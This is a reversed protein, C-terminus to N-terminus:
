LVSALYNESHSLFFRSSIAPKKHRNKQRIMRSALRKYLGVAVLVTLAATRDQYYDLFQRAASLSRPHQRLYSM